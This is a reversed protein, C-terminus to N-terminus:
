YEVSQLYLGCGPAVPWFRESLEPLLSNEIDKRGMKGENLHILAGALLRVMQKLFGSGCVTIQIFDGKIALQGLDFSDVEEIEFSYVQRVTSKVPTGECMYNKFDHEGVFLQAAERLLSVNISKSYIYAMGDLFPSMSTRSILYTYSKRKASFVPHFEETCESVDIIKIDKPLSNNVGKLFFEKPYTSSLELRVIQSIAHVGTDTRGSAVSHKFSEGVLSKIAKELEGQVTKETHGQKQWGQYEKGLYSIKARYFYSM